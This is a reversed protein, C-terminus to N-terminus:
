GTTAHASADKGRPARRDAPLPFLINTGPYTGQAISATTLFGSTLYTRVKRAEEEWAQATADVDLSTKADM